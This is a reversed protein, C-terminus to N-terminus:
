KLLNYYKNTFEILEPIKGDVKKIIDEAVRYALDYDEQTIVGNDLAEKLEDEDVYEYSGSKYLIIDLYLDETYPVGDSTVGINKAIDFFWNIIENKDNLAAIMASNKYNDSYFELRKFDDGFTREQKGDNMAVKEFEPKIKKAILLSVNGKFDPNDFHINKYEKEIVRDWNPFDARKIKM